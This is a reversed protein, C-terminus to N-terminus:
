YSHNKYFINFRTWHPAVRFPVSDCPSHPTRSYHVFMTRLRHFQRSFNTSNLYFRFVALLLCLAGLKKMGIKVARINSLKCKGGCLTKHFNFGLGGSAVIQLGYIIIIVFRRMSRKQPIKCTGSSPGQFCLSIM